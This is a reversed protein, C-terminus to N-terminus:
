NQRRSQTAGVCGRTIASGARQSRSQEFFGDAVDFRPAADEIKHCRFSDISRRAGHDFLELWFLAVSDFDTEPRRFMRIECNGIWALSVSAQSSDEPVSSLKVYARAIRLETLM